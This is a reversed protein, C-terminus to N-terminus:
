PTDNIVTIPETHTLGVNTPSTNPSEEVNVIPRGQESTMVKGDPQIGSPRVDANTM